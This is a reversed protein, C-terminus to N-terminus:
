KISVLFSHKQYLFSHKIKYSAIFFRVEWPWQNKVDTGMLISELEEKMAELIEEV